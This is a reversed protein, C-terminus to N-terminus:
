DAIVFGKERFLRLCAAAAEADYIVGAGREIEQLALEIGRMPRYPRHSSMSEVVDAVATIRAEIIIDNGKLGRPYGSGDLREHHQRAVEAVPWPFAIDKLIQYGQEAHQKIFEYEVSSLSGPKSLIESPVMIKGVDHVAGAVRLGRQLDEDLGMEAAIAAALEGVRREHGATYPDRLEVMQSVAATTAFVAEQLRKLYTQSVEQARRTDTIDTVIGQYFLPVGDAGREINTLDEVWREEQAATLIRYIQRFESRGETTFRQVEEMVQALDDPHVMQAFAIRGSYLSAVSYGWRVINQSVFEVPWGPEARWRFLVVPSTDIVSAATRLAVTRELSDLGFSIERTIEEITALENPGFYDSDVAYLNLTAITEGGSFIPFAGSAKIGAQSAAAHWQAARPDSFIDNCIVALGTDVAEGAPGNGHKDSPDAQARVAAVFGKDDGASAVSKVVGTSDLMGIWGFRFSGCEVAIRCIGEFLEQRNSAHVLLMSSQSLMAYLRGMRALELENQRQVTVDRVISLLVTNGDRDIPGSLVAVDRVSGDALRHRFHFENSKQQLAGVMETQLEDGAMVNIDAIHKAMLQQHSWGYFLEAATSADLIAGSHPEIVLIIAHHNDLLARYRQMERRSQRRLTWALTLATVIVFGWGKLISIRQVVEPDSWLMFVIRDSFVIYLAAVLAYVGVVKMIQNLSM